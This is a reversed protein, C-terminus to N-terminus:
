ALQKILNLLTSEQHIVFKIGDPLTVSAVGASDNVKSSLKVAILPSPADSEESCSSLKSSWYIFRHYTLNHQRCYSSKSQKTQQYQAVHKGWFNASQKEIYAQQHM